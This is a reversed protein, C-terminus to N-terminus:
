NLGPSNTQAAQTVRNAAQKLREAIDLIESGRMTEQNTGVTFTLSPYQSLGFVPVSINCVDYHGSPEIRDLHYREKCLNQQYEHCTQELADLSWTDNIKRLDCVLKAEAQTKLTVEYGRARISIVSVRLRQDLKENYEGVSEHARTLWAQLQKAPSWAIFCSGLPAINPFRLGLQFPSELANSAGYHSLLVIHSLTRGTAGCGMQLDQTLSDLEPRAYELLPAEAFASLGAAIISPGLRYTKTQPNQVLFGYRAM